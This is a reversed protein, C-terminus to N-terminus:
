KLLIIKRIIKKDPGAIGAFYIGAPLPRNNFDTGDWSLTGPIAPFPLSKLVRGTVDYIKLEMKGPRSSNGNDRNHGVENQEIRFNIRNRGPNPYATLDYRRPLSYDNQEHVAISITIYITLYHHSVYGTDSTTMTLMLSITSDAPTEAVKVLYPDAANDASAGPPIDGFFSVSDLMEAETDLNTLQGQVMQALTDGENSITVTVLLTEGPEPIRNNNGATSDNIEYHRMFLWPSHATLPPKTTILIARGSILPAANPDYSNNYVYQLGRTETEDEFGVTASTPNEVFQYVFLIEGDSTPTPYYTPDRLIMQFTEWDNYNDYRAAQYFEIIWRHNAADFYQYIDGHGMHQTGVNLNDWFGALTRKPGGINPLSTNTSTYSTAQGVELFGNSCAGISNYTLSYYRFTFPLPLTVTDGDANTIEPIIQGPGGAPTAIEFWNYIPAQGTLSDTNDYMYYGYADPGTGNGGGSNGTCPLNFEYSWSRNDTDTIYLNFAIAHTPTRPSVSFVFPSLGASSDNGSITGYYVISDTIFVLTDTTRLWAAVGNAPCIGMNRITMQLRINEGADIVGNNNGLSDNIQYHGYSLFADTEIVNLNREYPYYNRGTITLFITGPNSFHFEHSFVGNVDTYGTEYILTDFVVCVYASEVATGQSQVLVSLTDTGIFFVSDHTVTLPRPATTWIRMAPDGITNFGYYETASGYMQYVRMRGVECAEGFTPKQQAFVGDLFGRCVASRLYAGNTISTTTAFYGAGGRLVTPSGTLFWREAAAPTSSRGITNCTFSLVIPLQNGNTVVDPNCDFPSYWNNTGSGRYMLFGRGNNVAAYVNNYNHGYYDSLTDIRSFGNNVMYQAAYRVDNIYISDDTPDNDFNAILCAKGFWSDNTTDPYREYHLIKEVVTQCETSSHVTLRGSLIENYVDGDMNTYYNDTYVTGITPYPIYNPAGVFLIFKPKITWNYYANYIYSYIQSASSGIQSLRVVKTRLGARNRWQALPQIDSWYNDHTIILYEAGSSQAVLFTLAVSCLIVMLRRM